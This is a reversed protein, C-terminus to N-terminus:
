SGGKGSGDSGDGGLLAKWVPFWLHGECLWIVVLLGLDCSRNSGRSSSYLRWLIMMGGRERIGKRRRLDSSKWSDDLRESALVLVVVLSRDSASNPPASGDKLMLPKVLSSAGRRCDVRASWSVLTIGSDLPTTSGGWLLLRKGFRGVVLTRSDLGPDSPATHFPVVPWTTASDLSPRSM